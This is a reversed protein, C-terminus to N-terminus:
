VADLSDDHMETNVFVVAEVINDTIIKVYRGKGGGGKHTSSTCMFPM